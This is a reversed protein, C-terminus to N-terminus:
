GSESDINIICIKTHQNDYQNDIIEMNKRQCFVCYCMKLLYKELLKIHKLGIKKNHYAFCISGYPSKNTENLIRLIENSRKRIEQTNDKKKHYDDIYGSHILCGMNLEDFGMDIEDFVDTNDCNTLIEGNKM